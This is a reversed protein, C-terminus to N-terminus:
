GSIFSPLVTTGPIAIADGARDCRGTGIGAFFAFHADSVGLRSIVQTAGDIGRGGRPTPAAPQKADKGTADKSTAAKRATTEESTSADTTSEAPTAETPAATDDATENETPDDVPPEHGERSTSPPAADTGTPVTDPTPRTDTQRARREDRVQKLTSLAKTVAARPRDSRAM